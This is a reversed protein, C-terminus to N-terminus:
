LTEVTRAHGLIVFLFAIQEILPLESIDKAGRRIEAFPQDGIFSILRKLKCFEKPSTAEM